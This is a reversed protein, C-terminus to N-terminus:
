AVTFRRTTTKRSYMEYIAPSEKKLASSDFRTSQVTTYRVKYVDSTIEEINEADMHAKLEDKITEAEAEAEEILSMLEKLNRIKTAIENQSM